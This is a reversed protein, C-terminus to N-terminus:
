AFIQHLPLCHEGQCPNHLAQHLTSEHIILHFRCHFNQQYHHHGCKALIPPPTMIFDWSLHSIEFLAMYSGEILCLLTADSILPYCSVFKKEIKGGNGGMGQPKPTGRLPNYNQCSCKPSYSRGSTVLPRRHAEFGPGRQDSDLANGSPWSQELM